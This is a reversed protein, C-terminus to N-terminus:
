RKPLHLFFIFSRHLVGHLLTHINHCGKTHTLFDCGSKRDPVLQSRRLLEVRLMYYLLYQERQRVFQPQLFIQAYPMYNLTGCGPELM